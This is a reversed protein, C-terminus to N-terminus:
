LARSEGDKKEKKEERGLCSPEGYTSPTYYKQSPLRKMYQLKKMLSGKIGKMMKTM